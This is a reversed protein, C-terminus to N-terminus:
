KQEFQELKDFFESNKQQQTRPKWSQSPDSHGTETEARNNMTFITMQHLLTTERLYVPHCLFLGQFLFM